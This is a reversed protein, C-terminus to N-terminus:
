ARVWTTGQPGDKLVIGEAALAARIRDAEAFDRAKRAATRRAILDDIAGDGEGQLWAAPAQELLGLVAGSARLVAAAAPDDNAAALM